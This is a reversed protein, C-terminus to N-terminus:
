VTSRHDVTPAEINHEWTGQVAATDFVQVVGRVSTALHQAEVYIYIYTYVFVHKFIYM